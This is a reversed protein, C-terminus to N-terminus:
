FEALARLRGPTPLQYTSDDAPTRLKARIRNRLEPTYHDHWNVTLAPITM